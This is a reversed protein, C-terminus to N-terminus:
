VIANYEKREWIAIIRLMAEKIEEFFHGFARQYCELAAITRYFSMATYYARRKDYAEGLLYLCDMYDNYSFYFALHERRSSRKMSSQLEGSFHREYLRLAESDRDHLLDYFILRALSKYDRQRKLFVRFNFEGKEPTYIGHARDYWQRTEADSLTRYAKILRHMRRNDSNKRGSLSRIDPHLKKAKKRFASRIQKSNALPSIGLLDDYNYNDNM